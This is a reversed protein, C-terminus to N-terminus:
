EKEVRVRGVVNIIVKTVDSDQNMVKITGAKNGVRGKFRIRNYFNNTMSIGQPFNYDVIEYENEQRVWDGAIGGGQGNDIFVTYGDDRMQMVVFSNQKIAEMKMMQLRGVLTFVESRLHFTKKWNSVSPYSALSLLSVIMVSTVVEATSFGAHCTM